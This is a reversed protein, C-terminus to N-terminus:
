RLLVMKGTKELGNSELRYFYIGSPLGHADFTIKYDGATQRAHILEQVRQGKANFITLRVQGPKSLSYHLVTTPNFPNPFNPYLAFRRTIQPPGAFSTSESVHVEVPVEISGEDPDNDTIQITTSYTGESAQSTFSIKVYTYTEPSLTLSNQDVTFDPNSSQIQSVQLNENGTNIIALYYNATTNFGITGMNVQQPSVAIEPDDYLPMGSVSPLRDVFEPHDIFPNRNHQWNNYIRDNRRREWNDVSDMWHWQYLTSQKGFVPDNGTTSPTYDVLELDYGEEGEYRVVMYYMMRAVDGKDADRPEWSDNDYHCGTDGDPDVYETGGNDFDLNGRKSNVSVDCPRIHHVDTGAPPNTGFDGHSKAWVHERNWQDANGGHNSKPYSWGTYILIVNNPNNPDEDTDSLIDWLDGYSYQTHGKIINHLAAKLDAGWKNQTADYYSDTYYAEASCQIIIPHIGANLEVRMFDTYDVNQDSKFYIHFDYEGQAPITTPTLDSYFEDEDFQGSLM